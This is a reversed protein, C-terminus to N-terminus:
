LIVDDALVVLLVQESDVRGPNASVLLDLLFLGLKLRHFGSCLRKLIMSLISKKIESLLVDVQCLLRNAEFIPVHLGALIHVVLQLLLIVRVFLECLASIQGCKSHTISEEFEVSLLLEIGLQLRREHNM